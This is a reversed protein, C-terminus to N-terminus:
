RRARLSARERALWYFTILCMANDLRGAELLEWARAFSLVHVLIDENEEDLGHVGGLNSSDVLGCFVTVRENCAGPSPYYSHLEFLEQIECGAEEMAERRAVDAPMEGPEILGAVPELKWPSLPDDLAGVRVQEVLVVRDREVDYLLVGVADYRVHMERTIENSWGGKFLRHRLHRRELNFFGQYLCETRTLEVDAAGFRPTELSNGEAM